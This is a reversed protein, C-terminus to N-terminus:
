REYPCSNLKTKGGVALALIKWIIPNLPAFFDIFFCHAKSYREPAAFATVKAKEFVGNWAFAQGMDYFPRLMKERRRPTAIPLTLMGGKLLTGAYECNLYSPLKELYKECTRLQCAEEFGSRLIFGITTRVEGDRKPALSEFFEMVLGPVCDVFLPMAFIVQTSEEIIQRYHEWEEREYLYYVEAEEEGVSSYGNVFSGVVAEASSATEHEPFCNFVALSM